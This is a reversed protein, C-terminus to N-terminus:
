KLRKFNYNRAYRKFAKWIKTISLEDYIQLKHLLDLNRLYKIRTKENFTNYLSLEQFLRKAESENWFNM